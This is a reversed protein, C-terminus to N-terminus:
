QAAGQIKQQIEKLQEDNMRPGEVTSLWGTYQPYFEQHKLVHTITSVDGHMPILKIHLHPVGEGELVLGVRQVDFAKQLQRAVKKAALVLGTLVEDAVDLYNDGPNKKPIVVTFGPTNPFPTLFAMYADDEWVSFSPITGAVIEDFITREAM